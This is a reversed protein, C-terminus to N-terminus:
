ESTRHPPEGNLIRNVAEKLQSLDHRRSRACVAAEENCILCRRPVGRSLKNGNEDLVDMDFLRGYPHTEEISTAMEKLAKAPANVAALWQDGANEHVEREEIIAYGEGVEAIVDAGTEEVIASGRGELYNRLTKLGEDFARRIREDTKIEGPINMSFSIVPLHQEALIERQIEARRDRFAMMEEVTVPRGANKYDM